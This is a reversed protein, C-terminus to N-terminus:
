GELSPPGGGGFGRKHFVEDVITDVEDAVAPAGHLEFDWRLNGRIRAKVEDQSYGLRRLLAAREGMERAYMDHAKADACRYAEPVDPHLWVFPM